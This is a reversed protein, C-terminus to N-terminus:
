VSYMYSKQEDKDRAAANYKAFRFSIQVKCFSFRYKTFHFRYKMFSFRYKPFHFDTSEQFTQTFFSRCVMLEGGIMVTVCNKYHLVTVCRVKLKLSFSQMQYIQNISIFFGFFVLSKFRQSFNNEKKPDSNRSMLHTQTKEHRLDLNKLHANGHCWTLFAM